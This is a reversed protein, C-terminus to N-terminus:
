NANEVRMIIDEEITIYGLEKYKNLFKIVSAETVPFLLLCQRVVEQIHIGIPTVQSIIRDIKNYCKLYDKQPNSPM